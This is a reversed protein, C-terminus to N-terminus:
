QKITGYTVKYVTWDAPGECQLVSITDTWDEGICKVFDDYTIQVKSHDASYIGPVEANSTQDGGVRIWYDAVGVFWM